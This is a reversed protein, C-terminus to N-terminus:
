KRVLRMKKARALAEQQRELNKKEKESIGDLEQILFIYFTREEQPMNEIDATCM